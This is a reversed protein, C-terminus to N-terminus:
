AAKTTTEQNPFPKYDAGTKWLAMMTVALKRAVAVTARKKASKGGREALKLGWARLATDPGFPGLIYHSAQMLLSRLYRDGCKSIRMQPDSNGSQRQSPTLGLFPGVSRTRPFRTPDEITLVFTLATLFSVGAIQLMGETEPTEKASCEIQKNYSRIKDTLSRISEMMPSLADRIEVPIQETLTGFKGTSCSPMRSGMSKVFGRVSNVLRTRAVVLQARARILVLASQTNEERHTIPALLAPDVRGLRALLEADTDDNKAHNEAILRVRRPNAVIVEHKAASILRSIWASHTGVELVVRMPSRLCFFAQIRKPTSQIRTTEAVEGDADLVCIHCYKDGLDMGVTHTLLKTM